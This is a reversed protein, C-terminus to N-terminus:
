MPHDFGGTLEWVHIFVDFSGLYGHSWRGHPSLGDEVTMRQVFYRSREGIGIISNKHLETM